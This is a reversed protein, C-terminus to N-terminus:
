GPVPSTTTPKSARSSTGTTTSRTSWATTPARSVPKERTPSQLAPRRLRLRRKGGASAGDRRHLRRAPNRRPLRPLRQVSPALGMRPASAIRGTDRSKNGPPPAPLRPVRPLWPLCRNRSQGGSWAATVTFAANATERFMRRVIPRCNKGPRAMRRARPQGAVCPWGSRPKNRDDRGRIWGGFAKAALLSSKARRRGLCRCIILEKWRRWGSFGQSYDCAPRKKRRLM